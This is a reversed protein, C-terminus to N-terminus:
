DLSKFLNRWKSPTDLWDLTSKSLLPRKKISNKKKKKNVRKEKVLKLPEIKIKIQDKLSFLTLIKKKKGAKM